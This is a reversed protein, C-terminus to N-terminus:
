RDWITENDSEAKANERTHRYVMEKARDYAGGDRIREIAVEAARPINAGAKRGAM